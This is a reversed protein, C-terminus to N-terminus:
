SPCTFNDLFRDFRLQVLTADEGALTLRFATKSTSCVWAGILGGGIVAGDADLTKFGGFIGAESGVTIEGESIPDFTLDPQSVRLINYTDALFTIPAREQQPGWILIVDVGGSTFGLTGQSADPEPGTWGTTEVGAGKDLKLVFGFEVVSKLLVPTPTPESVPTATPVQTPTAGATATPVATAGPSVAPAATATPAPTGAPEDGDCAALTLLASIVIVTGALPGGLRFGM